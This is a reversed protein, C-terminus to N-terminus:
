FGLKQRILEAILTALSGFSAWEILGIKWCTPCPRTHGHACLNTPTAKKAPM